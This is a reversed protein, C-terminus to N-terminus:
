EVKALELVKIKGEENLRFRVLARDTSHKKASFSKGCKGCELDSELNLAYWSAEAYYKGCSPCKAVSVDLYADM